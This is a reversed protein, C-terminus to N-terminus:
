IRCVPLLVSFISGKGIESAVDINGKHLLIIKEVISLGLGHGKVNHSNKSRYFPHFIMKLEDSSIGSGNDTFNVKVHQEDVEMFVGVKCDDSYKCANDMLNGFATKMLLDSGYVYLKEESDIKESFNIHIAYDGNRKCIEAQARWLAEDIRFPAFSTESFDSSTQALLLLRDSIHNLNKIEDLVSTLTKLYEERNREKLLLVELQGTLITLPTRLEHSANAIFNKQTKFASELRYLMKNFTFALMALEDTGNGEDIRENLNTVEIKDVKQIINSVPKLAKAAFIRGSLFVIALSGIFVIFLILRLRILKKVGYIDTAATFVVIRDYQGTYFQGIIEYPGQKHRIENYLRVRNILASNIRIVSEEDSSFL